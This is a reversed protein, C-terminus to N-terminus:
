SCTYRSDLLACVVLNRVFGHNDKLAEILPEVARKDRIEGLAFASRGRVLYYDDNKLAEILPEIALINGDWGLTFAARSRWEDEAAKLAQVLVESVPEDKGLNELAFAVRGRVDEDIADNLVKILLKSTRQGGILTLAHSPEHWSILSNKLVKILPEVAREDGIVGLAFAVRNRVYENNDKM